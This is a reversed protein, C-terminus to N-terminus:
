EWSVESRKRRADHRRLFRVAEEDGDGGGGMGDGDKIIWSVGYIGGHVM